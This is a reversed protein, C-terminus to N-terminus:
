RPKRAVACFGGRLEVLRADDFGASSLLEPVGSRPQRSNLTFAPAVRGGAKLVRRIERLRTSAHPWVQMSNITDFADDEFPMSDVSGHRM